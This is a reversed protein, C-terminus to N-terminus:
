QKEFKIWAKDAPTMLVMTPLNFHDYKRLSTTKTECKKEPRLPDHKETYTLNIDVGSSNHVSVEFSETFRRVMQEYPVGEKCLMWFAVQFLVSEDAKIALEVKKSYFEGTVPQPEDIYSNPISSIDSHISQIRTVEGRIFDKGASPNVDDMWLDVHFSHDDKYDKHKYMNHLQYEWETNVRFAGIDEEYAEVNIYVKSVTSYCALTEIIHKAHDRSAKSKDNFLYGIRNDIEESEPKRTTIYLAIFGVIAFFITDEIASALISLQFSKIQLDSCSNTGGLENGIDKWCLVDFQYVYLLVLVVWLLLAAFISYFITLKSKKASFPNLNRVLKNTRKEAASYEAASVPSETRSVSERGVRANNKDEDPVQDVKSGNKHNSM